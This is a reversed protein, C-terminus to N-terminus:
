SSGVEAAWPNLPADHERFLYRRMVDFSIFTRAHGLHSKDYPTVGCVYMNVKKGSLPIFEEKEGSLTNQIKLDLVLWARGSPLESWASKWARKRM